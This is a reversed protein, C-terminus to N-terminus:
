LVPPGNADYTRLLNLGAIQEAHEVAIAVTAGNPKLDFHFVVPITYGAAFYCVACRRQEDPTPKHPKDSKVPSACCSGCSAAPKSGPMTIAGRTHGPLVINLWVFQFLIFSWRLVRMTRDFYITVGVNVLATNRWTGNHTTM